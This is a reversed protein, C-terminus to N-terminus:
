HGGPRQTAVVFRVYILACLPLGTFVVRTPLPRVRSGPSLSESYYVRIISIIKHQRVDVVLNTLNAFATRDCSLSLGRLTSLRRPIRAVSALQLHFSDINRSHLRTSQHCLTTCACYVNRLTCAFTFLFAVRCPWLREGFMGTCSHLHCKNRPQVAATTAVSSSLPSVPQHCFQLASCNDEVILQHVCSSPNTQNSSPASLVKALHHQRLTYSRFHFRLVHM